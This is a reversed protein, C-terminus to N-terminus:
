ANNMARYAIYVEGLTIFLWLPIGPTPYGQFISFKFLGVVFQAWMASSLVAAVARLWPGTRVGNFLIGGSFLLGGFRILGIVTCFFGIFNTGLTDTILFFVSSELTEPFFGIEVAMGLMTLTMVWEFLKGNVYKTLFVFVGKRAEDPHDRLLM